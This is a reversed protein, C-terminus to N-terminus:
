CTFGTTLHLEQVYTCIESLREDDANQICTAGNAKCGGGDGGQLGELGGVGGRERWWVFFFFLRGPTSVSGPEKLWGHLGELEYKVVKLEM